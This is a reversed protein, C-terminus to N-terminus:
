CRSSYAGEEEKGTKRNRMSLVRVSVTACPEILVLPTPRAHGLVALHAEEWAGMGFWLRDLFRALRGITATPVSFVYCGPKKAYPSAPADSAPGAGLLRLPLQFYLLRVFLLGPTGPPKPANKGAPM